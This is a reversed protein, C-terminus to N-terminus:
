PTMTRISGMVPLAREISRKVRHKLTHLVHRKELCQEFGMGCIGFIFQMSEDHTPVDIDVALQYAVRLLSHILTRDKFYVGPFIHTPASVLQLM